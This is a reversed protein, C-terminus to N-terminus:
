ANLVGDMWNTLRADEEATLPPNESDGDYLFLMEIEYPATENLLFFRIERLNNLTDHFYKSSLRRIAKVIPQQIAVVLNM